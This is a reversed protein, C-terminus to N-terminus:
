WSLTVLWQHLIQDGQLRTVVVGSAGQQIYRSWVFEGTQAPEGVLRLHPSSALALGLDDGRFEQHLGATVLTLWGDRTFLTRFGKRDGANTASISREVVALDRPAPALRLSAAPPLADFMEAAAFVVQELNELAVAHDRRAEDAMQGVGQLGALSGEAAGLDARVSDLQETVEVLRQSTADLARENNGGIWAGAGMGLLVAVLVMLPVPWRRPPKDLVEQPTTVVLPEKPEPRWASRMSM